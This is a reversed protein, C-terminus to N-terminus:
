SPQQSCPRESTAPSSGTAAGVPQRASAPSRTSVTGPHEVNGAILEALAEAMSPSPAFRHAVLLIGNTGLMLSAGAGPEDPSTLAAEYLVGAIAALDLSPEYLGAMPLRELAHVMGAAGCYLGRFIGDQPDGPEEDEPHIPVLRDAHFASEADRCIVAM